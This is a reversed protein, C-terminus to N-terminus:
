IVAYGQTMRPKEHFSSVYHPYKFPYNVSTNYELGGLRYGTHTSILDMWM